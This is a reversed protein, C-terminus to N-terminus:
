QLPKLVSAQVVLWLLFHHRPPIGYFGPKLGWYHLVSRELATRRNHNGVTVQEQQRYKYM